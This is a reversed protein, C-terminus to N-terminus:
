RRAEPAADVRGARMRPERDSVYTVVVNGAVAELAYGGETRRYSVGELPPAVADLTQPYAGTASRVAEIQRALVTLVGRLSREQEHAPLPPTGSRAENVNWALVGVAAAALLLAVLWRSGRLEPRQFAADAAQEEAAHGAVEEMKRRYDGAENANPSM